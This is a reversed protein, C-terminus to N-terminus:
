SGTTIQLIVRILQSFGWDVVALFGSMAVTTVLVVITLTFTESRSPWTVKM